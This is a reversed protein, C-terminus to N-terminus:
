AYEEGEARVVFTIARNMQGTDLLPKAFLTSPEAGGARAALEFRAGRRIGVGSGRRRRARAQLTRDSLPPPVGEAILSQVSSMGAFGAAALAKEMKEPKGGMAANAAQKLYKVITERARRIGPFLSPRAPINAEPAGNEHLYLLAANNMEGDQRPGNEAPVGVLVDKTPIARIGAVVQKLRDVTITVGPKIAM